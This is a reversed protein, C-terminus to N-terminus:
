KTNLTLEEGTLAYYLNQLSHVYKIHPLVVSHKNVSLEFGALKNWFLYTWDNCIQLKMWNNEPKEFGMELLIEPTLPIPRNLENFGDNDDECWMIYNADVECRMEGEDFGTYMLVNGVRLEQPQIQHTM